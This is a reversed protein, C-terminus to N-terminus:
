DEFRYGFTEIDRQYLRGVLDRTEADYYAAHAAAAGAPRPSASADEGSESANVHPLLTRPIGVTDCVRDFDAQLNEFRGVFDVLCRGTDDYLYDCQPLVHRYADSYNCPEPFGERVFETFSMQTFYRRYNFESVLRSWPNRVFAFKFYANFGAESIHGCDVYETATLHGLREPGLAPDPNFRLLLPAREDWTLGYQALFVHEISIGATKPVHVFVCQHRHSIM